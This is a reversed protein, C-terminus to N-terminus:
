NGERMQSNEQVVEDILWSGGCRACEHRFQTMHLVNDSVNKLFIFLTCTHTNSETYLCAHEYVCVILLHELLM